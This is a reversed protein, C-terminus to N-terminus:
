YLLSKWIAFSSLRSSDLDDFYISQYIKEIKIVKKAFIYSDEFQELSLGDELSKDLRTPGLNYGIIAKIKDGQYRNILQSLYKAGIELNVEPEFLDEAAVEDGSVYQATPLQIQALGYADQSSVAEPRFRSENYVLSALLAPSLDFKNAKEVISDQYKLPYKNKALYEPLFFYSIVILAVLLILLLIRKM